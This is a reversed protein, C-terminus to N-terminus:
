ITDVSGSPPFRNAAETALHATSPAHRNPTDAALDVLTGFAADINDRGTSGDGLVTLQIVFAVDEIAQDARDAYQDQWTTFGRADM